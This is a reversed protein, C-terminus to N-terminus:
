FHEFHTGFPTLIAIKQWFIVFIARRSPVYCWSRWKCSRQIADTQEARQGITVNKSGFFKLKQSGGTEAFDQNSAQILHM